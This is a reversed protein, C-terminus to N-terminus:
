DALAERTFNRTASKEVYVDDEIRIGGCPLLADVLKWDIADKAEARYPDLLMPIFYLGPEITFLHREEIVRTTRLAPHAAPPPAITGTRDVQRGAVDHVQIGLHHGLGHPFFPLTLGRQVADDGSTKVVGTKSLLAGIKRHADLHLDVYSVGPRAARALEKQLAEMGDLLAHFVPHAGKKAYTRTIDCGYARESAGADILLVEGKRGDKGLKGHYHLTAAHEDLGVISTYPLREDVDGVASVYEHHIEIESAGDDFARRAAAHGRAARATAAAMTGAEYETKYSREWDLRAVLAPPNVAAAALGRSLAEDPAGGVYATRGNGRVEDWALEPSVVDVVDMEERVFAPAPAPPEYWFDRPTVRLLRPRKGPTFELLHGPGEVPAWHAFHPTPHFPADNDDAFYTFPRGAHLLLRDFGAEELARATTTKREEVHSSYLSTV